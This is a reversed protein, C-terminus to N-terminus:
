TKSAGALHLGRKVTEALIRATCPKNLLERFGLERVKEATMRGSYGTNLIIALRPQIQLLSRGLAIGDMGPMTMDTIVLDFAEPQDRVATIAELPDTKTTVRYGLQELLKEGVKALVAEDDVLLIHEGHGRPLPGTESARALMEAAIVPFYLNFRTGQGPQSHVSVGGDHNKMIGHVVALGLGTGEGVDKTTFFPEFIRELTAGDMGVGTDSVSLQVYNGPHLDHHTAVLDEDVDLVEMEVKLVGNQGRMAHWANTGLNMIVQHIATANALVVPTENLSTEICITAPLSALLLKIAEIVVQNLKLPEREPKTQRSFTLIQKVLDTARQSAESINELNELIAPHEAAALKALYLNGVIASLINNFDHAIGGALQGVTEMKQAKQFQQELKKRETLDLVFCVGEEPNDEFTAAGILVAVHSGDKRMYEKEFPTCVGNAALEKLAQQDREIWEPPTMTFWDIPGAALDARTYGMLNLFADNAETIQGQTNWFIVGQANSDVLRRFRAESRKKETIDRYTWIRGFYKGDQGCVPSTYRDFYKGNNLELVDRSVENPHAYLRAVNEAFQRPNKVQNAVWALRRRHDADELIEQPHNWLASMQPNEILKKGENDVVIIADLASNVQAEFFATKWLLQAEAQKQETIDREIAAFHTCKGAADFIPVINIDLWYETGDKRYNIVQRKVPERRQLAGQIEALVNRDTKEGQLFRPSRGMAEAATYGTLREFAANVYVIKPGPEDIPEAETVLIIENLNAVCTNLLRLQQESKKRQTIDRAVKSVGIVKGGADKIPSATVSVDILRRDKTQRVAEIHTLNEGLQIKQSIEEEEEQRGAPMLRLISTGIMEGATYGFIKEAGLNWSTIRHNLDKAYIADDSSEVIAALQNSITQADKRETINTWVGVIEVPQGKADRVLQQQDEVWLYHGAQHRIRYESNWTGTAMVEPLGASARERDEPHLQNAWWDSSCAEAVTYGLLRTINESVLQPIVQEDEVKLSYLVAPSHKLLHALQDRTASLKANAQKLGQKKEALKDVLRTSYEKLVEIEPLAGPKAAPHSRDIVEKLAALIVALSAPKILYKNAGLELGLKVDKPSTFTSSYIIIPLNRLRAQHRIEHCLRYGDMRPMLIDSIMADVRQGDLRELAAVGDPAQAVVHGEAELQTAMLKLNTPNDDVILINM